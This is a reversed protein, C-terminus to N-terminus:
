VPLSSDVIWSVILLGSSISVRVSSISSIEVIYGVDVFDVGGGRLFGGLFASFVCFREGRAVGCFDFRL